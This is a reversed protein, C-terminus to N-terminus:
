KIGMVEPGPLWQRIAVLWLRLAGGAVEEGETKVVNELQFGVPDKTMGEKRVGRELWPIALM